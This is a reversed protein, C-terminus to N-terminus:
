GSMHEANSIQTCVAWSLHDHFLCTFLLLPSARSSDDVERTWRMGNLGIVQWSWLVSGDVGSLKAVAFDYGGVTETEGDLSDDTIGAIFFSGEADASVGYAADYGSNSGAQHFPSPLPPLILIRFHETSCLKQLSGDREFVFM